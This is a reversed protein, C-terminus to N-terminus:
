AALLVMGVALRSNHDNPESCGTAWTPNTTIIERGKKDQYFIYQKLKGGSLKGATLPVNSM